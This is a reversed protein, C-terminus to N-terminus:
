KNIPRPFLTGVTLKSGTIECTIYQIPYNSSRYDIFVFLHTNNMYTCEFLSNAVSKYWLKQLGNDTIIVVVKMIM